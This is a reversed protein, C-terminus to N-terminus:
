NMVKKVLLFEKNLMPWNFVSILIRTLQDIQCLRIDVYLSIALTGLVQILLITKFNLFLVFTHLKLIIRLYIYVIENMIANVKFLPLFSYHLFLSLTVKGNLSGELTLHINNIAQKIM